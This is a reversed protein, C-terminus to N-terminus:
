QILNISWRVKKFVFVFFFNTGTFHMLYYNCCLKQLISHDSFIYINWRIICIFWIDIFLSLRIVAHCSLTACNKWISPVMINWINRRKSGHVIKMKQKCIIIWKYSSCITTSLIRNAGAKIHLLRLTCNM